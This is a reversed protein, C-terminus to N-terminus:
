FFKTVDIPDICKKCLYPNREISTSPVGDVIKFAAVKTELIINLMSATDIGTPSIDFDIYDLIETNIHMIGGCHKLLYVYLDTAYVTGDGKGITSAKDFTEGIKGKSLSHRACESYVKNKISKEIHENLSVEKKYPIECSAATLFGNSLVTGDTTYLVNRADMSRNQINTVKALSAGRKKDSSMVQISNGIKVDSAPVVRALDEFSVDNSGKNNVGRLSENLAQLEDAVQITPVNHSSTIHMEYKEGTESDQAQIYTGPFTEPINMNFTVESWHERGDKFTLVDEGQQIDQVEKSGDKTKIITGDSYCANAPLCGTHCLNCVPIPCAAYCAVLCAYFAFPGGARVDEVLVSLVLIFFSLLLKM